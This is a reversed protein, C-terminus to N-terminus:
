SLFHEPVVWILYLLSDPREDMRSHHLPDLLLCLLVHGVERSVDGDDNNSAVRIQAM